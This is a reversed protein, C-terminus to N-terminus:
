AMPGTQAMSHTLGMLGAKTASYANHGARSVAGFVSSIHIIRGWGRQKM